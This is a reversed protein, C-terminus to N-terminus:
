RENRRRGVSLHLLLDMHIVQLKGEDVWNYLTKTSPIYDFLEHKKVYSVVVDPFWNEDKIKEGCIRCFRM